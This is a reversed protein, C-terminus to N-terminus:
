ITFCRDVIRSVQTRDRPRSSERSFPFPLGSWYEQRSFGMSPAQHGHSQLSDSVVSRSCKVECSLLCFWPVGFIIDESELVLITKWSGWGKRKSVHINLFSSPFPMSYLTQTLFWPLPCISLLKYVEQFVSSTTKLVNEDGFDLVLIELTQIIVSPVVSQRTINDTWSSSVVSVTM